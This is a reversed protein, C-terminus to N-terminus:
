APSSPGLLVRVTDRLLDLSSELGGKRSSALWCVEVREILQILRNAFDTRQTIPLENISCGQKILSQGVHCALISLDTATRLEKVITASESNLNEQVATLINLQKKMHKAAAHLGALTLGKDVVPTSRGPFILLKFIATGNNNGLQGGGLWLLNITLHHCLLQTFRM